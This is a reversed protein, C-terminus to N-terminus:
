SKNFLIDHARICNEMDRYVRNKLMEADTETLGRTDYPPLFIFDIHGRHLEFKQMSLLSRVGVVCYVLLPKQSAIAMQFAGNYFPKLPQDTRNRQGEPFLLISNGAALLEECLTKSKARSEPSSRDVFISVMGFLTGVFPVKKLEKKALCKLNRKVAVAATFMDLTSCHNSIVVYNRTDDYYAGNQISWTMGCAKLWFISGAKCFWLFRNNAQAPLFVSLFVAYPFAAAVFLFFVLVGYITYIRLFIKRIIKM